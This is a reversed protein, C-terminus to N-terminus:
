SLYSNIKQILKTCVSYFVFCVEYNSNIYQIRYINTIINYNKYIKYLKNPIDGVGFSDFILIKNNKRPLGIWNSGPKNSNQLNM